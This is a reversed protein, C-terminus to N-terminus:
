AWISEGLIINVIQRPFLDADIPKAIYGSFGLARAKPLAIARESASVAIIPVNDHGHLARIHEFIDFGSQGDPLMLDLIILDLKKIQKLKEVTNHGWQDFVLTAGNKGLTIQYIARNLSNDELIFINRNILIMSIGKKQVKKLL